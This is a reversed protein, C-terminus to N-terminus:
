NGGPLSFLFNHQALKRVGLWRPIEVQEKRATATFAKPENVCM